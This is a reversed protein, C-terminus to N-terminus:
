SDGHDGPCHFVQFYQGAYELPKCELRIYGVTYNVVRQKDKFEAILTPGSYEYVGDSVTIGGEAFISCVKDGFIHMEDGSEFDHVLLPTLGVAGIELRKVEASISYAPEPNNDSVSEEDAVEIDVIINGHEIVLQFYMVPGMDTSEIFPVEGHGDLEARTVIITYPTISESNVTAANLVQEAVNDNRNSNQGHRDIGHNCGIASSMVKRTQILDTGFVPGSEEETDGFLTKEFSLQIAGKVQCGSHPNM